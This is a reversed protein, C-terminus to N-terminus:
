TAAVTLVIDAYYFEGEPLMDIADDGQYTYTASALALPKAGTVVKGDFTLDAKNGSAGAQSKVGTVNIFDGAVISTPTHTAAGGNKKVDFEGDSFTLTYTEIQKAPNLLCAYVKVTGNKDLNFGVDVADAFVVPNAQADVPDTGYSYEDAVGFRNTYQKYNPDEADNILDTENTMTLDNTGFRLGFVPIVASVDSKLKITHTEAFVAGVLVILVALITIAKKM